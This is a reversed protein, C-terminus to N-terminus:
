CERLWRERVYSIYNTAKEDVNKNSGWTPNQYGNRYIFNDSHSYFYSSLKQMQMSSSAPRNQDRSGTPYSNQNPRSSPGVKSTCFQQHSSPKTVYSISKYNGLKSKSFGM